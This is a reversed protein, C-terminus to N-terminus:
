IKSIPKRLWSLTAWDDTWGLPHPYKKNPNLGLAKKYEADTKVEVDDVKVIKSNYQVHSNHIAEGKLPEDYAGGLIAALMTKERLAEGKMMLETATAARANADELAIKLDEIRRELGECNECEMM